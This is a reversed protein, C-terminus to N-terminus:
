RQTFLRITQLISLKQQETCESLGSMIQQELSTKEELIAEGLLLTNPSLELAKCFSLLTGISMGCTGREIDAVYKPARGMKEALEERTLNLAKRRACIRHGVLQYDYVM